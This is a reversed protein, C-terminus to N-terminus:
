KLIQVWGKYERKSDMNRLSYFYIGPAHNNGDWENHYNNSQYVLNGWRNVIKIDWQDHRIEKISFTQNKDDDNPTIVNPIEEPCDFFRVKIHDTGECAVGKVKISYEGSETVDMFERTSNDSWLYGVSGIGPSLRLTEGYCLTTDKGLSFQLPEEFTVQITDTRKCGNTYATLWYKGTTTVEMQPLGSNNSWVFPTQLNSATLTFVEGKCLSTDNGLSFTPNKFDVFVSDRTHCLDKYVDVWYLGKESVTFTSSNSGDQWQYKAGETYANITYTEGLCITTDNGLEILKECEYLSVDDIFYYPTIGDRTEYLIPTDDDSSFNGIIIYEEEGSAIFTGEFKTWNTTDSIFVGPHIIQPIFPLIGYSDQFVETASFYVALRDTPFAFADSLSVFCTFKYENGKKLTKLLKVQLYERYTVPPNVNSSFFYFGAYGKGSHPIQYGFNNEPTNFYGGCEEFNDTSGTTPKTWEKLTFSFDYTACGSYDEFSPNPVLNQALSEKVLV